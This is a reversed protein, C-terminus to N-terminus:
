QTTAVAHGRWDPVGAQRLWEGIVATAAMTESTEGSRSVVNLLTDALLGRDALARRIAALSRPDFTDGGFHVEPAGGRQDPRLLNHHPDDLTEHIVRPALDSGGIGLLLFVSFERRAREALAITQEITETQEHSVAWARWRSELLELGARQEEAFTAHIAALAADIEEVHAPAVQSLVLDEGAASHLRIDDPPRSEPQASM